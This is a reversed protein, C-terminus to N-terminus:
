RLPHAKLQTLFLWELDNMPDVRLSKGLQKTVFEKFQQLMMKISYARKPLPKMKDDIFAGIM